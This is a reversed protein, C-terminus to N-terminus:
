YTQLVISRSELFLFTPINIGHNDGEFTNTIATIAQLPDAFREVAPTVLRKKKTYFVHLAVNASAYDNGHPPRRHLFIVRTGLATPPPHNGGTVKKRATRSDNNKKLKPFSFFSKLFYKKSIKGVGIVDCIVFYRIKNAYNVSIVIIDYIFCTTM